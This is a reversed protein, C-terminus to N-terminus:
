RASRNSSRSCILRGSALATGFLVIASGLLMTGSIKEDLFVAGWVIGFVPILFTVSATYTAGAREVLRFYLLYAFGTCLVGLAAVCGWTSAAVPQAPWFALAPLLLAIAAFLQSGFTAVFPNVGALHRKSYNISFGYLLTAAMAAAVASPIGAVNTGLTESVLVIVGLLGTLLGAIQQRKMTGQFGVTAILAAWIPTTANLVSDMGADIYLTSYALLSFPLASNCIGVVILPRIKARLQSRAQRSHLIPALVLTAIGVRLAILPLPGLEPTAVRMFLFSAGWIAALLSLELLNM